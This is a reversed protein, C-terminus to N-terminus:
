GPGGAGGEIGKGPLARTETRGTHVDTLNLSYAFDGSVSNGSHSVLDVEAFGPMKVQLHDTKIPIIHKLLTGPKTQGYRRHKLRNKRTRLRRDIQRASIRLLPKEVAPTPRFRKRM